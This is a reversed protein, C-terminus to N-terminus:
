NNLRLTRSALSRYLVKSLSEASLLIAPEWLESQYGKVNGLKSEQAEIRHEEGSGEQFYHCLLAM